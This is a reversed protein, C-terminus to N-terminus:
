DIDKLSRRSQKKESSARKERLRRERSTKSPHTPQRRKPSKAVALILERLKSLCDAVNRGQDRYRQSHIVLEGKKNIRHRYTSVFRACVDNPLSCTRQVSWYMTVKTNVKNVNQGGPGGSRAFTFAFEKLPIAINDDVKLM